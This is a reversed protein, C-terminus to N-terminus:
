GSASPASRSPQSSRSSTACGGWWRMSPYSWSTPPWCRAAGPSPGSPGPKSTWANSVRAALSLTVGALREEADLPRPYRRMKSDILYLGGPGAVLHDINARSRPVALDHWVHWGPPLRRLLRATRREGAAGAHWARAEREGVEAPIDFAAALLRESEGRFAASSGAEGHGSVDM